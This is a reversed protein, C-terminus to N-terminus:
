ETEPLTHRSEVPDVAALLDVLTRRLRTLVSAGADVEDIGVLAGARSSRLALM